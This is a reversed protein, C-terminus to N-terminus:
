QWIWHFSLNPLSTLAARRWVSGNNGKRRKIRAEWASKFERVAAKMHKKWKRRFKEVKRPDMTLQREDIPIPPWVGSVIVGLLRKYRIFMATLVDM